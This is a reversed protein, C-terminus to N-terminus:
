SPRHGKRNILVSLAPHSQGVHPAQVGVEVSMAMGTIECEVTSNWEPRALLVGSMQPWCSIQDM